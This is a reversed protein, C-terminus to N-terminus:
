ATLRETLSKLSSETFVLTDCNMLAYTNLTQSEATV